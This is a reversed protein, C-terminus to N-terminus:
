HLNLWHNIFIIKRGQISLIYLFILKLTLPIVFTVLSSTYLCPITLIKLQKFWSGCSIRYGLELMIRLIRKQLIFVKNVNQQNSWFIIGYKVILHFDVSYVLKLFDINLVTCLQRMLFCASGLKRLFHQIHNKWTIQNDLHLGLFNVTEVELLLHDVYIPNLANPLEASIFKLGKPKTPNLIFHNAWFWESM